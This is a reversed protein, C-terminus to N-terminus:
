RYMCIERERYISYIHYTRGSIHGPIGHGHVCIRPAEQELEGYGGRGGAQKRQLRMGPSKEMRM